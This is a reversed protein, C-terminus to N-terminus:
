LLAYSTTSVHLCKVSAGNLYASSLATLFATDAYATAFNNTNIYVDERLRIGNSDYSTYFATNSIFLSEQM